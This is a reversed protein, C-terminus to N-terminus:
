GTNKIALQLNHKSAFKVMAQVDKISQADIGVVPISGQGCPFGLTTNLYCASITRNSFMFMKFTPDQM